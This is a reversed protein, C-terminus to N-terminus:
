AERASPSLNRQEWEQQMARKMDRAAQEPDNSGLIASIVAAGHAGSGIVEAVNSADIGGIGLVPIRVAGTIGSLLQTGVVDAVPHSGTRFISGAVLFDAGQEVAQTARDLTHVSRGILMGDEILKRASAVPMASEGLQVGDAECAVAVDVRANVFLLASGFTAERLKLALDLLKGSALGKERLQVLDVGGAVAGAVREVLMDPDGSCLLLDTVLCLCPKPIQARM